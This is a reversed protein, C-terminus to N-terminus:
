DPRDQNMTSFLSVEGEHWDSMEEDEAAQLFNRIRTWRSTVTEIDHGTFGEQILRDLVEQDSLGQQKLDIIIQDESDYNPKRRSTRGEPVESESLMADDEPDLSM